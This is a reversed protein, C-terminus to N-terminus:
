GTTNARAQGALAEDRPDIRRRATTGARIFTMPGRWYQNTKAVRMDPERGENNHSGPTCERPFPERGVALKVIADVRAEEAPEM